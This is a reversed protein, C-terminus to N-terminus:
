LWKRLAAEDGETGLLYIKGGSRWTATTLKSVSAIKEEGVKPLDNMPTDNMVFLWLDGNKAAAANAKDKLFCIMSVNTGHWRLTACGTVTAQNMGEPLQFDAPYQRQALFARVQALDSSEAAMAYPSLATRVMRTRFAALSNQDWGGDERQFWLGAIAGLVLVLAAAALVRPHRWWRAQQAARHESLIQEKLGAPPTISRFAHQIATQARCHDEFWRRLTADRECKALAATMEADDTDAMGPRHRLLIQKAEENTVTIV